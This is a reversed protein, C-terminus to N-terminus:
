LTKEATYIGRYGEKFLPYDLRRKSKLHYGQAIYFDVAQTQQEMVELWVKSCEHLAAQEEFWSLLVKGVGKRQHSSAIYLRHLKAYHHDPKGEPNIGWVFRLIGIFEKKSYVGFYDTNPAFVEKSVADKCYQENFYWEGQDSWYAGYTSKYLEYITNRLVNYDVIKIPQVSITSSIKM